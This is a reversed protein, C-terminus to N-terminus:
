SKQVSVQSRWVIVNVNHSTKDGLTYYLMNLAWFKYKTIDWNPFRNQTFLKRLAQESSCNQHYIYFAFRMEKESWTCDATQSSFSNNALFWLSVKNVKLLVHMQLGNHVDSGHGAMHLLARWFIERHCIKLLPSINRVVLKSSWYDKVSLIVCVCM